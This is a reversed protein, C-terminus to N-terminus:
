QAGERSGLYHTAETPPGVRPASWPAASVSAAAAPPLAGGGPQDSSSAYARRVAMLVLVLYTGQCHQQSKFRDERVGKPENVM